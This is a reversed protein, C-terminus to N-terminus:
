CFLEAIDSAFDMSRDLSASIGRSVIAGNVASEFEKIECHAITSPPFPEFFDGPGPFEEAMCGKSAVLM